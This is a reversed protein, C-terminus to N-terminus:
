SPPIISTNYFSFTNASQVTCVQWSGNSTSAGTLAIENGVALNHPQSTNVTVVNGSASASTMSIAANSFIYGQYGITVGSNYISSQTGTYFFKGTYSFTNAGNVINNSDVIYLGDAGAFLSDLVVIPTGVAPAISTGVNATYIRSGNNAVINNINLSGTATVYYAFPTNNIMSLQEWKTTQISYEYDTDILSQPTSVRLKNIPDLYAESPSFKEDYEDIVIQLKDTASLAATNYNLVITTFTQSNDASQSITYSTSTLNPDSFNFIVQNTTVDTILVLRERPIARPIVITKTSPTFTYYTDLIAKRAM